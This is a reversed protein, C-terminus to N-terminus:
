IVRENILTDSRVLLWEIATSHSLRFAKPTSKIPRPTPRGFWSFLPVHRCIADAFPTTDHWKHPGVGGDITKCEFSSKYLEKLAISQYRYFTCVGLVCNWKEINEFTFKELTLKKKKLKFYFFNISDFSLSRHAPLPRWPTVHGKLFKKKKPFFILSFHITTCCCFLSVSRHRQRSPKRGSHYCNLPPHHWQCTETDTYVTM